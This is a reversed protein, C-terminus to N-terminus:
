VREMYWWNKLYINMFLLAAVSDKQAILQKAMTIQKKVLQGGNRGGLSSHQEIILILTKIDNYLSPPKKIELM